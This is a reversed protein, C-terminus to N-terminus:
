EQPTIGSLKVLEGRSIMEKGIYEAFEASDIGSPEYGKPTLQKDRFSPKATFAGLWGLQVEGTLLATAM